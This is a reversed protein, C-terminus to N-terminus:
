VRIRATRTSSSRRTSLAASRRALRRRREGDADLAVDKAIRAELARVDETATDALGYEAFRRGAQETSGARALALVAHYRLTLDNPHEELAQEALDFASLLEGRREARMVTELWDAATRGPATEDAPM